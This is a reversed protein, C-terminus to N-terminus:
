DNLLNSNYDIIYFSCTCIIYIENKMNYGQCQQRLLKIDDYSSDTLYCAKNYNDKIVVNFEEKNSAFKRQDPCIKNVISKYKTLEEKNIVYTNYLPDPITRMHYFSEVMPYNIYLKGMDSSERFYSLMEIIKNSTFLNDQPDFDFILIIDSFYSDLTQIKCQEKEKEKLLQILDFNSPDNDEFMEKYLTYINTNYSIIEHKDNIHYISFLRKMLNVDTKAGEVLVLVKSKDNM